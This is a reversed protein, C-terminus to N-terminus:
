KGKGFSQLCDTLAPGFAAQCKPDVGTFKRHVADNCAQTQTSPAGCATRANVYDRMQDSTMRKMEPTGSPSGPTQGMPQPTMPNTGMPPSPNPTGAPPTAPPAPSASTQAGVNLAIVSFVVVSLSKSITSRINMAVGTPSHTSSDSCGLPRRIETAATPRILALAPDCGVHATILRQHSLRAYAM